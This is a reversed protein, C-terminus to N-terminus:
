TEIMAEELVPNVKGIESCKCSKFYVAEQANEM